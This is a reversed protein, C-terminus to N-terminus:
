LLTSNTWVETRRQIDNEKEKQKGKRGFMM